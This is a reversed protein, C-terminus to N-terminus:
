NATPDYVAGIFLPTLDESVHVVLFPRNAVLEVPMPEAAKLMFGFLTFSAARVREEDLIYRVSHSAESVYLEEDASLKSFDASDRSFCQTVGLKKLGEILSTESSIDLKPAVITVDYFREGKGDLIADLAEGGAILDSLTVGEDPLVYWVSSGDKLVKSAAKFGNGQYFANGSGSMFNIEMDGSPAHFTRTGSESTFSEEWKADFYLTTIVRARDQSTTPSVGGVLGDTMERIWKDMLADYSKDGMQGSFVSAHYRSKLTELTDADYLTGDNLWLSAAPICAGEAQNNRYVSRYIRGTKDRLEEISGVELLELIEARTEGNAAEATMALALYIDLPSYFENNGSALFVASTKKYFGILDKGAGYDTDRLQAAYTYYANGSPTKPYEAFVEANKMLSRSPRVAASSRPLVFSLVAGLSVALVLCAAIAAIVGRRRSRRSPSSETVYKESVGTIAEALDEKKM